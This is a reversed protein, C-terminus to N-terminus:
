NHLSVKLGKSMFRQAGERSNNRKTIYISTTSVDAHGVAECTAKIDGGSAEYFLSIFAARLKHPSIAYGLADQSYKKVLNYIAKETMRQKSQRYSSIFLADNEEGALLLERKKLWQNIIHEMEETIIYEQEKNRKDIVNLKGEKLSIDEINIESLATKRMGTNMFMFMILFDREMWDRQKAIAKHSGAGNIVTNLIKNLDEMTLFKRDIKDKQRPRNTDEIPNTAIINKKVLYKFFLNLITWISKRYAFSTEGIVEGKDNVKFAIKEFYRDVVKDNIETVDCNAYDLFMKIKRIYELCTMPERAVQINYYFDSVCEPLDLLLNEITKKTRLSHELRGKM